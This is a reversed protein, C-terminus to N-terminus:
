RKAQAQAERNKRLAEEKEDIHNLRGVISVIKEVQDADMENYHDRVFDSDDLSAVLFNFVIQDGDMIEDVVGAETSLLQTLPYNKLLGYFSAAKNRFYVLKTPKIEIKKGAIVVCNEENIDPPMTEKKPSETPIDTRKENEQPTENNQPSTEPIIENPQSVPPTIDIKETEAPVTVKKRTTSPIPKTM